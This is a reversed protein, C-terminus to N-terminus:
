KSTKFFGKKYAQQFITFDHNVQSAYLIAWKKAAAIWKGEAAFAKLADATASGQRGSSRLQASATIVALDTIYEDLAKSKKRSPAIVVKDTTPQIEKVVYWDKKYEFSSLLYPTVHEMMQQVDIVRHAPNKWKPQPLHGHAHALVESPVVQKMDLIMKKKPNSQNEMLLCYRKVGISGTGAIRYCADSVKYQKYKVHYKSFWTQFAPILEKKEKEALKLLNPTVLFKANKKKNDTRERLLDKEKRNVVGKITKKILGRATEEEVVVAKNYILAQQYEKLLLEMLAESEKKSYGSEVGSLIVAVALRSIEYLVPAIIAEDFDNMDFYVLRNSGKYCGFNETHLDGCIWTKPSPGFPYKKMLDEYYLHCTGRFFRFPSGAMAAYKLPLVQQQRPANFKKIRSLLDQSM